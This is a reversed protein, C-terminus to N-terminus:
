KQLNKLHFPDIFIIYLLHVYTLCILEIQTNIFNNAYLIMLISLQLIKSPYESERLKIAITTGQIGGGIITWHM